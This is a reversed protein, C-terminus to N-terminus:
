FNKENINYILWGLTLYKKIETDDINNINDSYNYNIYFEFIKLLKENSLKDNEINVILKELFDIINNNKM